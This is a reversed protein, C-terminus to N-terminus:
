RIERWTHSRRRRQGDRARDDSRRLTPRRPKTRPNLSAARARGDCVMPMILAVTAPSAALREMRAWAARIEENWPMDPNFVHQIEGTGWMGVMAALSGRSRGAPGRRGSRRLLRSGGVSEHPIPTDSCVAGGRRFRRRYRPPGSGPQRSRRAGRHRQRGVAGPDAVRGATIPDSAGTGPQDFFVLRGLSTMAEVWGQISPLEPLHECCTFWNPIFVIDRPGPSARYAVHLDGNM